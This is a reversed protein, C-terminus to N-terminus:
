VRTQTLGDDVPTGGTRSNGSNPTEDPLSPIQKPRELLHLPENDSDNWDDDSFERKPTIPAKKSDRAKGPLQPM